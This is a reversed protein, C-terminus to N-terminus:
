IRRGLLREFAPRYTRSMIRRTGTALTVAYDGRSLSELKAVRNLRVITSRHIRAFRTPDLTTLMHDLTDRLIHTEKGAHVVVYNDAAELWDITEVDVLQVRGETRVPLRELWPRGRAVHANLSALPDERTAPAAALRARVRDLAERLRDRSVPKLLYDAAHVEFAQVAFAEFATVFVILPRPPGLARVVDFGDLEPMQVDLLVVDPRVQGVLEVAKGGDGAEGVVETGGLVALLRRLRRRALPEDDVILTRLMM